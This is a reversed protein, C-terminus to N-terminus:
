IREELEFFCNATTSHISKALTDKEGCPWAAPEHGFCLRRRRPRKWQRPLLPSTAVVVLAAAGAAAASVGALRGGDGPTRHRGGGGGTVATNGHGRRPLVATGATGADEAGCLMSLM